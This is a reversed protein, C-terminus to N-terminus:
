CLITFNGKSYLTLQSKREWFFCFTTWLIYVTYDTTYVIAIYSKIIIVQLAELEGDHRTIMDDREKNYEELLDSLALDVMMRKEAAFRSEMERLEDAHRRALVARVVKDSDEVGNEQVGEVMAKM